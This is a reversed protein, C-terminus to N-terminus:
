RLGDFAEGCGVREALASLADGPLMGEEACLGLLEDEDVGLDALLDTDGGPVAILVSAGDGAADGDEEEDKDVDADDGTPVLVDGVDSHAAAYVDSVFIKLEDDDLRVVGFWEDEREILLVAPEGLKGAERLLDVMADSDGIDMLDVEAGSWDGGSRAMMAAFYAV